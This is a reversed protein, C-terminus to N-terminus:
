EGALDQRMTGTADHSSAFADPLGAVLPFQEVLPVCRDKGLTDLLDVADPLRSACTQNSV